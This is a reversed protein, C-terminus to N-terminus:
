SYCTPAVQQRAWREAYIVCAKYLEFFPVVRTRFVRLVCFTKQVLSYLIKWIDM